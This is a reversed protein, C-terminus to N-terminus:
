SQGNTPEKGYRRMAARDLRDLAWAREFRDRLAERAERDIMQDIAAVMALGLQRRPSDALPFSADYIALKKAKLIEIRQKRGTTGGFDPLVAAYEAIAALIRESPSM